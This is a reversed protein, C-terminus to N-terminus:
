RFRLRLTIPRAGGPFTVTVTLVVGRLRKAARRAKATPTLRLKLTGAGRATLTGRAVIRPLKLRKALRSPIRGVATIRGPQQVTLTVTVPKAASATKPATAAPSGSPANGGSPPVPTTGGPAPAPAPNRAALIAAADAAGISPSSGTPAIVVPPSSLVCPDAATTPVGAIKVGGDDKWAIRTADQSLTAGSTEGTTPLFCDVTAGVTAGATVGSLSVVGIRDDASDSSLDVAALTGTAAIDTRHLSFGAVGSTDILNDFTTGFPGSQDDPQVTALAGQKAVVRRGFMTPWEKGEQGIPQMGTKLDSNIVNHGQHFITSPFFGSLGSYGYALFLGDSSLDLSLPAVYSNWAIATNYALPGESLVAGNADWLRTTSLQFIKGAELRVGLVRGNDAATVSRWDGEGASLRVKAAGDFSSLWVEGGDVYAVSAARAAPALSLAVLLALSALVARAATWRPHQVSPM